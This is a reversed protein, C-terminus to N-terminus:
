CSRCALLGRARYGRPAAPGSARAEPSLAELDVVRDHDLIKLTSAEIVFGLRERGSAITTTSKGLKMEKKVSVSKDAVEVIRAGDVLSIQIDLGSQPDTIHQVARSAGITPTTSRAAISAAQTLPVLVGLAVTLVYTRKLMRSEM